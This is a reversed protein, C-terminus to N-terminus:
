KPVVGAGGGNPATLSEKTPVKRNWGPHQEGSLEETARLRCM